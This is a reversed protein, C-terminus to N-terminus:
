LLYILHISGDSKKRNIKPKSRYSMNSWSFFFVRYSADTEDSLETVIIEMYKQSNGHICYIMTPMIVVRYYYSDINNSNCM